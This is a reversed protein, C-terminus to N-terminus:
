IMIILSNRECYTRFLPPSITDVERRLWFKGASLDCTCNSTGTNFCYKTCTTDCVIRFYNNNYYNGTCTSVAAAYTLFKANDNCQNNIDLYEQYDGVCIVGLGSVTGSALDVDTM